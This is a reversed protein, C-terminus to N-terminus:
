LSCHDKDDTSQKLREGAKPRTEPKEAVDIWPTQTSVCCLSAL